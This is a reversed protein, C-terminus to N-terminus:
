LFDTVLGAEPTGIGTRCCTDFAQFNYGPNRIDAWNLRPGRHGQGPTALLRTAAGPERNVLSAAGPSPAGRAESDWRLDWLHMENARSSQRDMGPCAVTGRPVHGRIPWGATLSPFSTWGSSWPSLTLFHGKGFFPVPRWSTSTAFSWSSPVTPWARGDSTAARSVTARSEGEGGGGCPRPASLLYRCPCLLVAPGPRLDLFGWLFSHGRSPPSCEAEEAWAFVAHGPRGGDPPSSSPDM